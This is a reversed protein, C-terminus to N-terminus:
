ATVEIAPPINKPSLPCPMWLRNVEAEGQPAAAQIVVFEPERVRYTLIYTALGLLVCWAIIALWLRM